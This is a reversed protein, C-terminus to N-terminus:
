NVIVSDALCIEESLNDDVEPARMACTIHKRCNPTVVLRFQARLLCGKPLLALVALLLLAVIDVACLRM